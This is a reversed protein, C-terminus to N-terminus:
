LMKAIILHNTISPDMTMALPLLGHKTCCDDVSHTAGNKGISFTVPTINVADILLALSNTICINVSSDM